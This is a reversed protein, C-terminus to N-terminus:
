IANFGKNDGTNGAAVDPEATRDCSKQIFYGRQSIRLGQLNTTGLQRCPQIFHKCFSSFLLHESTTLSFILRIQKVKQTPLENIKVQIRYSSEQLMNLLYRCM